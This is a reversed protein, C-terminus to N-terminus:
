GNLKGGAYIREVTETHIARKLDYEDNAQKVGRLLNSDPALDLLYGVDRSLHPGPGGKGYAIYAKEGIREDMKMAREIAEPSAGYKIALEGIENSFAVSTALWANIAHKVFEATEVGVWFLNQCFPKFLQELIGRLELMAGTGIVIRAPQKFDQVAKGRRLNEPICAFVLHPYKAAMKAISGVPLQSSVLVIQHHKCHVLVQNAWAFVADVDAVNDAIPTDFTIWVIDASACEEATGFKLKDSGQVLVENLGPETFFQREQPDWAIVDNGAEALCAATTTGLL